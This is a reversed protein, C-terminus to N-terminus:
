HAAWRLAHFASRPAAIAAVQRIALFRLADIALLASGCGRASGEARDLRGVLLGGLLYGCLAVAEGLVLAHAQRQSFHRRAVL